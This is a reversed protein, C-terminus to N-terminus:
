VNLDASLVHSRYHAMTIVKDNLNSSISVSLSQGLVHEKLIRKARRPNVKGYTMKPNEYCDGAHHARECLGLCGTQTVV